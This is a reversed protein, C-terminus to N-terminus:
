RGCRRNGWRLGELVARSSIRGLETTPTWEQVLGDLEVVRPGKVLRAGAVPTGLYLFGVVADDPRLGLAAKVRDDYCPDGTRWMSGFGLATAALLANQAAAACAAVQEEWPVTSSASRVASIVVVLPARGLKTREKDAKAAVPETGCDACRALYAQELVRGFAAMGEGRLITFRFPRLEGHDPASAAAELIRRLQDDDPAPAVLRGISRRRAVADFLDM